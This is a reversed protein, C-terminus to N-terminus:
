VDIVVNTWNHLYMKCLHIIYYKYKYMKGFYGQGEQSIEPDTASSFDNGTIPENRVHLYRM